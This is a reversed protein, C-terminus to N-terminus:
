LHVRQKRKGPTDAIFGMGIQDTNVFIYFLTKGLRFLNSLFGGNKLGRFDHSEGKHHSALRIILLAENEIQM